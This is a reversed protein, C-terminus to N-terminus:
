RVPYAVPFRPHDFPKNPILEPIANTDRHPAGTFLTDARFFATLYAWRPADTANPPAFHVTAADHVTADGARLDLPPSMECEDFLEPHTATLDGKDDHLARGFLGQKQSGSLFRMTGMEAPIDILAVWIHAVGSRDFPLYPMDQHWTTAGGGKAAPLKVLLQDQLYRVPRGLLDHAVHGLGESHAFEDFVPDSKSPEDYDQWMTRQSSTRNPKNSKVEEAEGGMLTKAHELLQTAVSSPVLNPLHVWGNDRYHAVEEQTPLRPSGSSM